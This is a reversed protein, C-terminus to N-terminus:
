NLIFVKKHKAFAHMWKIKKKKFLDVSSDLKKQLEICRLASSCLVIAFPKAKKESNEKQLYNELKKVFFNQFQEEFPLMSSKNRKIILENLKEPLNENLNFDNKEVSSLNDAIFKFVHNKFENYAYSPKNLEKKKLELIETINKKKPKKKSEQKNTNRENSKPEFKNSKLKKKPQENEEEEEGDSISEFPEHTSFKKDLTYNEDLEDAM